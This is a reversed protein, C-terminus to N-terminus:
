STLKGTSDCPSVEMVKGSFAKFEGGLGNASDIEVLVPTFGRENTPLIEFELSLIVNQHDFGILESDHID